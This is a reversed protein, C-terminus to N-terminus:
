GKFLLVWRTGDAPELVMRGDVQDALIGILQLGLTKPNVTDLNHPLGVGNDSVVLEFHFGSTKRLSVFITGEERGVFAYKMANTIVESLILGLPVITDISFAHSEIESRLKIKKDLDYVDVLSRVLDNIYERIDINVLTNSQYMKAHILAMSNIRHRCEDFLALVKPDEINESQLNILSSIIQLNNKVRHHIEKLMVTKEENQRSIEQTRLRVIEELEEKQRRIIRTRLVVFYYLVIIVISFGILWFWWTAWFPLPAMRIVIPSSVAETKSWVGDSNQAKVKFRFTGPPLNPYTFENKLGPPSWTSDFGELMFSYRINQPSPLHVAKYYFTLHNQDYPLEIKEPLHFWGEERVGKWLWNTPELFLRIDTIHIKPENVDPRDEEPNYRTIGKITGFWLHGSKDKHVARANCEIGRFGESPGYNKVALPIGKETLTIRDVGKNTGVWLHGSDDFSMLFVTNSRLGDKQGYSRFSTGDFSMICKDTNFWIMGRKDELITGVYTNCLEKAYTKFGYGDYRTIGAGTGIWITGKRDEKVAHVFNMPLGDSTTFNKFTKGDYMFLGKEWTGIWINGKSDETVARVVTGELFSKTANNGEVLLLGNGHAAWIRGKSDCFVASVRRLEGGVKKSGTGDYVFLGQSGTGVWIQGKTDSAIGYVDNQRLGEVNNFYNFAESRLKVLGKEKTGIWTHHTNDELLAHIVGSELGTQPTYLQKGGASLYKCLGNDQMALWVDGESSCHVLAVNKGEQDKTIENGTPKGSSLHWAFLGDTAAVYLIGKTDSSIRNIERGPTKEPLAVAVADHGSFRFLKGETAMWVQNNKDTHLATIGKSFPGIRKIKGTTTSFVALGASTGIWVEPGNKELCQIGASPLGDSTTFIKFNKGDFRTVGGWTSGIWINGQDDETIAQVIPGGLGHSENYETFNVGDFQCVGGGATGVWLYGRSDQFISLVESQSLGNEVSYAIFDFNQAHLRNTFGAFILALTLLVNSVSRLRPEHRNVFVTSSM